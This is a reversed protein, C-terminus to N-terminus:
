SGILLSEIDLTEMVGDSLMIYIGDSDTRWDYVTKVVIPTDEVHIYEIEKGMEIYYRGEYNRRSTSM